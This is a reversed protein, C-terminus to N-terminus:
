LGDYCLAAEFGQASLPAALPLSLMNMYLALDKLRALEWAGTACTVGRLAAGLASQAAHTYCTRIIRIGAACYIKTSRRYEKVICRLILSPKM